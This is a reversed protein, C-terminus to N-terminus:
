PDRWGSRAKSSRRDRKEGLRGGARVLSATQGRSRRSSAFRRHGACVAKSVRHLADEARARSPRIVSSTAQKNPRWFPMRECPGRGVQADPFSPAYVPRTEHVSRARAEGLRSLQREEKGGGEVVVVRRRRVPGRPALHSQRSERHTGQSSQAPSCRQGPSCGCCSLVVWSRGGRVVEGVVWAGRVVGDLM